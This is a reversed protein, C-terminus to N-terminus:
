PLSKKKKMELCSFPQYKTRKLDSSLLTLFYCIQRRRRHKKLLAKHNAWTEHWIQNRSCKIKEEEGERSIAINQQWRWSNIFSASFFWFLIKHSISSLPAFSLLSLSFSNRKHTFKTEITASPNVFTNYHALFKHWRDCKDHESENENKYM